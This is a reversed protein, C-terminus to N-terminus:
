EQYPRRAIHGDEDVQWELPGVFLSKDELEAYDHYAMELMNVVSSWDIGSLNQHKGRLDRRLQAYYEVFERTGPVFIQEVPLTGSSAALYAQFMQDEDMEKLYQEWEEMRQEDIITRMESSRAEELLGRVREVSEILQPFRGPARYSDGSATFIKRPISYFLNSSIRDVLLSSVRNLDSVVQFSYATIRNDGELASPFHFTDSLTDERSILPTQYATVHVM